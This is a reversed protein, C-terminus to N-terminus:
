LDGRPPDDAGRRAEDGPPDDRAKRLVVLAEAVRRPDDGVQRKARTRLLAAERDGPVVHEVLAKREAVDHRSVLRVTERALVGHPRPVAREAAGVRDGLAADDVRLAP